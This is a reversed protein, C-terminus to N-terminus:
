MMAMNTCSASNVPENTPLQSVGNPDDELYTDSCQMLEERSSAPKDLPNVERPSLHLAPQKLSQWSLNVLGPAGLERGIPM